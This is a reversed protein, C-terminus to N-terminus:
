VKTQIATPQKPLGSVPIDWRDIKEKKEVIGIKSEFYATLYINIPVNSNPKRAVKMIQEQQPLSLQIDFLIDSKNSHKPLSHRELITGQAFPQQIWISILM